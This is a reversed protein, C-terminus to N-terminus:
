SLEAGDHDIGHVAHSLWTRTVESHHRVAAVRGSRLVAIRDSLGLLEEDDSSVLVIALGQSRLQGIEQYIDARAGVDVGQTPEDLLLLRTTPRLWRGIMVKQQNGGSLSAVPAAPGPAKVALREIISAGFARERRPSYSVAGFYQDDHSAVANFAISREGFAGLARDEPVYGIGREIASRADPPVPEDDLTVAGEYRHLGFICQLLSTRGSGVLGAIGVVEGARVVLDVGTLPGGRMGRAALVVEGDEPSTRDPFVSTMRRGAILEILDTKGLGEVARDAVVSGDRFVTVRDGIGLVEDLRHTVYIIAYGQDRFHLLAEMLRAAEAAPLTATPEDLVLARARTGEVASLARAVAVLTKQAPRLSGVLDDPKADIGFEDLLSQAHRKIGAWRVVGWRAPFAAGVVMNEAVTLNEFLGLDQHVFAIGADRAWEPSTRADSIEVDGFRITGEGAGAEVGALIKVLTSKGSGNGGLLTHISGPRVVFSVGKLARTSGYRKSVDILELGARGGGAEPAAVDGVAQSM